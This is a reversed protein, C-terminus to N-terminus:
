RKAKKKVKPKERAVVVRSAERAKHADLIAPTWAAKAVAKVTAHQDVLQEGPALVHRHFTEHLVQGDKLVRDVRKVEIHGTERVTIGDIVSEETLAM